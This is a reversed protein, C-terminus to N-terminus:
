FCNGLYPFVSYEAMLIFWNGVILRPYKKNKYGKKRINVSLQSFKFIGKNLRLLFKM